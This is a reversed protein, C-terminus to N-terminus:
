LEEGINHHVCGQNCREGKNTNKGGGRYMHKNGKKGWGSKYGKRRRVMGKRTEHRM